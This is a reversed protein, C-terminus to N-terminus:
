QAESRDGPFHPDGGAQCFCPACQSVAASLLQCVCLSLRIKEETGLTLVAGEKFLRNLKGKFTM